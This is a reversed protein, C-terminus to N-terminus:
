SHRFVKKTYSILTVVALAAFPMLAADVPLRYRAGSWTLIHLLNFILLFWYILSARMREQNWSLGIGALFFPLFLGFSAVRMLNSFLNSESSFWFNFHVGTKSLTLFLYRVPDQLIFEIGRRTLASNWQAENLKQAKLDEPLEAAFDQDFHTGHAPHNASYIAYGANSNLPLFAYYVQSNRVTWPLILAAAVALTLATGLFLRKWNMRVDPGSLKVQRHSAWTIWLLQFPIWLLITQRLLAALGTVVGLVAWELWGKPTAPSDKAMGSLRLGLLLIALVACIFFPETMLTVDYYIFFAYVTSLGAGVLGVRSSFLARGLRYILWPILAGVLLVQVLRAALPHFGTLAYIGALYLPYLFSWHATPTNAPTFGPYYDNEFSYGRGELISKALLNYSVQDYARLQQPTDLTDGLFFAAALRLLWGLLIIAVLISKDQIPHNRIAVM